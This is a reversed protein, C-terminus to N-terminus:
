ICTTIRRTFFDSVPNADVHVLPITQDPPVQWHNVLPPLSTGALLLRPSLEPILTNPMPIPGGSSINTDQIRTLSLTQDVALARASDTGTAGGRYPRVPINSNTTAPTTDHLGPRAASATNSKETQRELVSARVDHSQNWMSGLGAGQSSSTKKDKIIISNASETTM